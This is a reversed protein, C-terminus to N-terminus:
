EGDREFSVKLRERELESQRMRANQRSDSKREAVQVPLQGLSLAIRASTTSSVRGNPAYFPLGLTVKKIRRGAGQERSGRGAGEGQERERRERGEGARDM